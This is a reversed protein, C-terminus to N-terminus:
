SLVAKREEIQDGYNRGLSKRRNKWEEKGLNGRINAIKNMAIATSSSVQTSTACRTVKRRGSSIGIKSSNSKRNGTQIDPHTTNHTVKTNFTMLVVDAADLNIVINSINFRAGLADCKSKVKKADDLLKLREKPRLLEGTESDILGWVGMSFGTADRDRHPANRFGGCTVIFNTGFVQANNTLHWHISSWNPALLKAAIMTNSEFASLSLKAFCEALFNDIYPLFNARSADEDLLSLDRAVKPNLAYSGIQFHFIYTM